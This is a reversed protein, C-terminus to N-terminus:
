YSCLTYLNHYIKPRPLPYRELYVRFQDWNMSKKQSRRNVWKFVLRMTQYFYRAIGRYNGSVGYYQFHGRLKAGLIRWWDKAPLLNRIAKLWQNMEKLKNKLRKRSTTRGVTFYDRRTKGIYHTFGLFEFTSPREGRRRANEVSYRGFEIVRTKEASLELGFKGFRDELKRLIEDAEEKYQVCIVFDDAYRVLKVTGRAKDQVEVKFWLDLIYHLYINALIPSIIGGQPTGRESQYWKGEEMVGSKLIRVILRLLQKDAIRQELCKMLWGHDVNDFFGKIDADIVHNIPNRMLVKDLYDLADHCGRGPRFGYSFDLFDKEYIATLIRAVGMQVVKDEISPIGLPRQKGDGKPIYVRRVAQPRYQWRKMRGVLDELNTQLNAEYESMTVGDIGSARDRKLLYFCERLNEVNLLHLLNNFRCKRDKAAIESILRLKTEM